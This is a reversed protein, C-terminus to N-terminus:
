IFRSRALHNIVPLFFTFAYRGGDFGNKSFPKEEGLPLIKEGTNKLIYLFTENKLAKKYYKDDKYVYKTTIEEITKDAKVINSDVINEMYIM